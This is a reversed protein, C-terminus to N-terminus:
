KREGYYFEHWLDDVAQTYGNADLWRLSEKIENLLSEPHDKRRQEDQWRHLDDSCPTVKYAPATM